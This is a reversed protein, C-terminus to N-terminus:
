LNGQKLNNKKAIQAVWDNYLDDLSAYLDIAPEWGTQRQLKLFSGATGLSTNTKRVKDPDSVIRIPLAAKKLLYQLIEELSKPKGSCVNYAQGKEGKEMIMRYARVVDRVDTFDIASDIAGVHIEPPQKGASIQAVQRAWDSCVFAPSQGPGTHNFSRTFRIDLNYRNIFQGGIMEATYKSIGYFDDPTM